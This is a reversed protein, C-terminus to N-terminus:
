KCRCSLPEIGWIDVKRWEMCTCGYTHGKATFIFSPDIELVQRFVSVDGGNRARKKGEFLIWKEKRREPFGQLSSPTILGMEFSPEKRSHLEWIM